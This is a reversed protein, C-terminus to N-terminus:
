LRALGADCRRHSWNIALLTALLVAAVATVALLVAAEFRIVM